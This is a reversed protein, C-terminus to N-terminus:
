VGRHLVGAGGDDEGLKRRVARSAAAEKAEATRLFLFRAPSCNASTPGMKLLEFVHRLEDDSVPEDRWQNFTRAERFIQDLATGDLM